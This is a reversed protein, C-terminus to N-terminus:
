PSWTDQVAHGLHILRYKMASKSVSFESALTILIKRDISRNFDMVHDVHYHQLRDAVLNRPMLFAAACANAQYECIELSSLPGKHTKLVGCASIHTYDPDSYAFCRKHLVQHFIEHMVTFNEPGRNSFETLTIDILITGEEVAIKYPQIGEKYYPKPWVWLLGSKFATMGLISQDPTLYKWDYPVNLCKEIVEYVDIPKIRRLREEDFDRLLAEAKEELQTPSYNYHIM